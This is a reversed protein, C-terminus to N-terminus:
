GLGALEQEAEQLLPELARPMPASLYAEALFFPDLNLERESKMAFKGVVYRAFYRSAPNENPYWAGSYKQAFYEGIFYGLRTLLWVKDQEDVVDLDHLATSLLPVFVPANKLVEHAPSIGMKSIFDVLSPILQEYFVPFNKKRKDFLQKQEPTM